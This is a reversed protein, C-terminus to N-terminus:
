CTHRCVRLPSLYTVTTMSRVRTRSPVPGERSSSTTSPRLLFANLPQSASRSWAKRLPMSTTATSAKEPNMVAVVSSSGSATETM